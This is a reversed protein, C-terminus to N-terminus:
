FSCGFLVLLHFLFFSVDGNRLSAMDLKVPGHKHTYPTPHGLPQRPRPTPTSPTDSLTQRPCLLSSPSLLCFSTCSPAGVLLPHAARSVWLPVSPTPVMAGAAPLPSDSDSTETPALPPDGAKWRCAGWGPCLSRCSPPLSVSAWTPSVTCQSPLVEQTQQHARAPGATSCLVQM